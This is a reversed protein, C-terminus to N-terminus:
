CPIGSPSGGHRACFPLMDLSLFDSVNELAMASTASKM